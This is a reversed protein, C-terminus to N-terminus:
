KAQAANVFAELRALTEPRTASDAMALSERRLQAELEAEGGHRLLQKLSSVAGGPLEALRTAVAAVEAEFQGDDVVRAVLGLALAEEASLTPNTAMLDFARQPGVLRPLFWTGGGDPTLGSRTYASVLRASRRAVALDAGCVLSFGGGAAVGNVAVLVAAPMRRMGLIAAHFEATMELLLERLRDKGAVFAQLDGGVCFATGRGTLVMVRLGPDAEVEAVAARLEKLMPLDVANLREPRDLTVTAIPGRRVLEVLRASV